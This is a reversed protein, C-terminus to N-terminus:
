IMSQEAAVTAATKSKQQLWAAADSELGFVKYWRVIQDGNLLMKESGGAHVEIGVNTSSGISICGANRVAHIKGVLDPIQRGTGIERVITKDATEFVAIYFVVESWYIPSGSDGDIFKFADGWKSLVKTDSTGDLRHFKFTQM